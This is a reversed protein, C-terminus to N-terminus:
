LIKMYLITTKKKFDYYMTILVHKSFSIRGEGYPFLYMIFFEDTLLLM